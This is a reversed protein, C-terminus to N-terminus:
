CRLCAWGPYRGGSRSHVWVLATATYALAAGVLWRNVPITGGRRVHLTGALGINFLFQWSLPNLFWFGPEPYNPPAIQYIGAVLWLVGSAVLALAPRYSVFLLFVPALLLLVPCAITEMDIMGLYIMVKVYPFEIMECMIHM